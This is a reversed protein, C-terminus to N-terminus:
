LGKTHFGPRSVAEAERVRKLSGETDQAGIAAVLASALV